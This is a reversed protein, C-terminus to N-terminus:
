VVRSGSQDLATPPILALFPYPREGNGFTSGGGHSKRAVAERFFVGAAGIGEALCKFLSNRFTAM